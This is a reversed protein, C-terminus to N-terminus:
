SFSFLVLSDFSSTSSVKGHQEVCWPGMQDLVSKPTKIVYEIGEDLPNLDGDTVIVAM